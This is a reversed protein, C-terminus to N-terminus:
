EINPGHVADTPHLLGHVAKLIYEEEGVFELYYEVVEEHTRKLVQDGVKETM